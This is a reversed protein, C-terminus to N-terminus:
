FTLWLVQMFLSCKRETFLSPAKAGNYPILPIKMTKQSFCNKRNLSSGFHTQRSKLFLIQRFKLLLIKKKHFSKAGNYSILPITMTKSHLLKGSKSFRWNAELSCLTPIFRFMVRCSLFLSKGDKIYMFRQVEWFYHFLFIPCTFKNTGWIMM